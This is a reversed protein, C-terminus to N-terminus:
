LRPEDQLGDESFRQALELKTRAPRGAEAYKKKVRSLYDEATRPSVGIKRAAAELTMGRAYYSLLRGEQPSLQPRTPRNDRTVAFALEQSPPLEGAAIQRISIVLADPGHNKTLYGEAGAELTAIVYKQDAIISVVLVKSGLGTLRVVNEAPSSDDKLNLDLLVIQNSVGLQVYEDVTAATHTLQIDPVASMWSKLMELLMRDDDIAGVTIM